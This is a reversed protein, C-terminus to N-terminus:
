QIKVLVVKENLKNVLETYYYKLLRYENADYVSKKFCYKSTITIAGEENALAKYTFSFLNDEITKEGPLFEVKYGEPINVTSFFMREKSYTLDIPYKRDPQKLPSEKIPENLFPSIYIKDMIKDVPYNASFSIIFAKNREYFNLMSINSLDIYQKDEIYETLKKQEDNIQKRLYFADYRDSTISAFANISDMTSNIGINIATHLKSSTNNTLEVWNNSKKQVVLGKDNLCKPPLLYFPLLPETADLLFSENPLQVLVVVYNFFHIFPFNTKIKGNDRTSLIVPSADIGADLLLGLLYLNIDASNGIKTKEFEKVTKNSFWSNRGNWSYNRKVHDVIDEIIDIQSQNETKLKEILEKNNGQASNIYKGFDNDKLIDNCLAPWTSIVDIKAGNLSYYSSLQFDLKLIYDDKSTIFGEDYFAPVDNMIYEHIFNQYSISGFQQPIGTSEYSTYSDFKSAGQLLFTYAYFPIM